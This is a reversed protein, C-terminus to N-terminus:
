AVPLAVIFVSGKGPTSEVEITGGSLEVIRKAIALGLGHGRTAHSPDAQYYRDFVRARVEETMGIGTDSVFVRARGDEKVLRVGLTGGKPTFKVANGILNIWVEKLMAQNGACMAEDLNINLELQKETWSQQLLVLCERLQEDLRFPEAAELIVQSELRNLLMTNSALHALRESEDAIVRLYSAREEETLEAKDNLDDLLLHAFGNISNIPTKFEHSFDAVFSEKLVENSQLNEAMKNFDEYMILTPGAVNNEDLRASFDGAAVRHLGDGLHDVTRTADKMLRWLIVGMLCGMPAFVAVMILPDVHVGFIVNYAFVAVGTCCVAGVVVILWLMTLWAGFTMETRSPIRWPTKAAKAKGQDTCSSETKGM